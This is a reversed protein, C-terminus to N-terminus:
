AVRRSFVAGATRDVWGGIELEAVAAMLAAPRQAAGCLLALDDLHREGSELTDWVALALASVGTPRRPGARRAAPDAYAQVVEAVSCVPRAGDRLLANTGASSPRDIPGPVAWVDRGAELGLRATILAGSREAAEVVVVADSLAAILRNREPFQHRRAPTGPPHESYAAGRELLAHYLREHSRPYARDLGTALVAVTRGAGALAGAHAAGDIGLALGSVVTVGSEVLARGLGEAVRRGYASARRSGVVAVCREGAGIPRGRLYLLLPPDATGGPLATPYDADTSLLVRVGSQGCAAVLRDVAREAADRDLAPAAVERAARALAAAADGGERV